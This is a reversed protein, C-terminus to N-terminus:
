DVGNNLGLFSYLDKVCDPCLDMVDIIGCDERLDEVPKYTKITIVGNADNDKSTYDYHKGCRDCKLSIM